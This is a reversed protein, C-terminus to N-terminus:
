ITLAIHNICYATPTQLLHFGWGFIQGTWLQEMLKRTCPSTEWPPKHPNSTPKLILSCQTAQLNEHAFHLLHWLFWVYILHQCYGLHTPNYRSTTRSLVWMETQSWNKHHCILNQSFFVQRDESHCCRQPHSIDCNRGFSSRVAWWLQLDSQTHHLIDARKWRVNIVPQVLMWCHSAPPERVMPQELVWLHTFKWWCLRHQCCLRHETGPCEKCVGHKWIPKFACSSNQFPHKTEQSHVHAAGKGHSLGGASPEEHHACPLSIGIATSM